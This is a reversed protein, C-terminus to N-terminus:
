YNLMYETSEVFMPSVRALPRIFVALPPVISLSQSYIRLYFLLLCTASLSFYSINFDQLLFTSFQNAWFHFRFFTCYVRKAKRLDSCGSVFLLRFLKWLWLWTSNTTSFFWSLVLFMMALTVLLPMIVSTLHPEKLVYFICLICMVYVHFIHLILLLLKKWITIFYESIASKVTKWSCKFAANM